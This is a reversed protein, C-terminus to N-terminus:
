ETATAVQGELWDVFQRATRPSRANYKLEWLLAEKHLQERDIDISRQAVLGEVIELYTKKDPSTFVVTIGFRDALSFKEQMTDAARVEDDHNGSGMGARDSFTEKILHRRNSTAYILVNNPKSELGGELVAKLATFSDESDEFSLDDVFIIFKLKEDRVRSIIKPFDVLLLKPVEIMRLGETYYENLLAKVTSSKGTGRDGYLLVNNAPYGELFHRTNEIVLGRETEYDILDTLKIPDPKKIGKLDGSLGAKRWVFARYRAFIGIGNKGYFGALQNLCDPWPKSSFVPNNIQVRWLPLRAINEATINDNYCCNGACEKIKAPDTEAIMQLYRLDNIVAESIPGAVEGAQAKQSYPNVDFLILKSLYEPFSDTGSSFLKFLFENYLSIFDGSELNEGIVYHILKYFRSVVPDALLQRYIALSDLALKVEKLDEGNM